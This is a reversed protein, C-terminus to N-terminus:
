SPIGRTEVEIGQQLVWIGAMMRTRVGIQTYIHDLHFEVTKESNFTEAAITKNTYGALVLQLIQLECQTLDSLKTMTAGSTYICMFSSLVSKGMRNFLFVAPHSMGAAPRITITERFLTYYQFNCCKM